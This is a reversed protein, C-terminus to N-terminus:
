GRAPSWELVGGTDAGAMAQEVSVESLGDPDGTTSVVFGDDVAAVDNGVATGPLRM